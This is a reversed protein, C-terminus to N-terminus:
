PRSQQGKPTKARSKKLDPFQVQMQATIKAKNQM